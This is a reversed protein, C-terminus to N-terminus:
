GEPLFSNLYEWTRVDNNVYHKMLEFGDRFQSWARKGRIDVCRGSRKDLYMEIMGLKPHVAYFGGGEGQRPIWNLAM